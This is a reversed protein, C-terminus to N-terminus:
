YTVPLFKDDEESVHLTKNAEGFFKIVATGRNTNSYVVGNKEMASEKILGQKILFDLYGKLLNGSVNAQCVIHNLQLPGKEALANLIDVYMELKSRSM